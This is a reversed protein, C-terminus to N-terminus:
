KGLSSVFIAAWQGADTATRVEVETVWKVWQFGRQGPAVLRLPAGHGHSLMADGVQTALLAERAEDIPLSWRYGTVSHFSVYRADERCCATALLRGVRVGRWEQETYWGGTCDLTATTRDVAKALLEGITYSYVHDVAGTIRLRWAAADVPAPNDFMWMTVPFDAPGGGALRSGTFRRRVGPLKLLRNAAEQGGWLLGGSIGLAAVGLLTRRSALDAKRLPRFRQALHIGYVAVLIIAATTHLIMGNPYDAPTQAMSWVVGAVITAVVAAAAMISVFTAGQWRRPEVVRRYVRRFKWFLLLVIALGVWAHVLFLWRGSLSGVLFSGLGSAFEFLVLVLLTWDVARAGM